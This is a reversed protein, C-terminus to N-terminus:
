CCMNHHLVGEVYFQAGVSHAAIQSGDRCPEEKTGLLVDAGENVFAAKKAHRANAAPQFCAV